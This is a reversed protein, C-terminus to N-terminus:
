KSVKKDRKRVRREDTCHGRLSEDNQVSYDDNNCKVNLWHQHSKLSQESVQESMGAQKTAKLTKEISQSIQM